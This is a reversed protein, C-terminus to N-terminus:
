GIDSLFVTTQLDSFLGGPVRASISKIVLADHIWHCQQQEEYVGDAVAVGLCYEGPYINPWSEFRFTVVRNEGPLLPKFSNGMLCSNDGLVERGLRDKFLFGFVPNNIKKNVKVRLKLELWEGSYACLNEGRHSIVKVGVIEARFDGFQRCQSDIAEFDGVSEVEEFKVSPELALPEDAASSYMYEQYKESIYQPAGELVLKGNNLWIVRDCLETIAHTDHSVFIV